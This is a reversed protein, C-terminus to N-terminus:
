DRNWFAPPEIGLGRLYVVGQACHHIENDIFYKICSFVQSEYMGFAVVTEQFRKESIEKWYKIIEDTEQDWLKLLHKKTSDEPSFFHEAFNGTNEWNDTAIGKIGPGSIDIIEKVMGSFTRMGGISYSFLKDEPFAEIVRRTLRRHGLWENLMDDPSIFSQLEPTAINTNQTTM